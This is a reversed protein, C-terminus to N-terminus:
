NAIVNVVRTVEVANNGATDSVNYTITYEGIQNINVPNVTVINDTIDGDVNDVATAGLDTYETDVTVEIQSDGILTIVPITVDQVDVVNVVRTVEVANNGASDSVNYTIIYEGIQNINVPNVTVINNTIDGDVNDIATAGLDTYETDITVEIQSEGILTIIPITVDQVDVVNVVRTVEVANNGAIDSVNYTIIYEGIENINVPNVTVINDTIDGDVNDVATAGLDTYETGVTVEIQSEGILTIVPPMVDQIDVVNVVRKVEVANNGDSDVVNYTIIYEGIQNINVPNVIVINDTIDGDINDTAIAGLDTYETDVIVNVETAGIIMIIPKTLDNVVNVVRSVEIANNGASDVVNYTVTYEGIENTNVPNVVVINDTIDGDINDVATAGLDIYKDGIVIDIKKAGIRTIIPITTDFAKVVNVVRRVEIASNGASDVVNYIVIYKGIKKTNVLNIVEINETIDGDIDDTATAGLDIYETDLLITTPNNGLLVIVPKTEDKKEIPKSEEGCSIFLFITLILLINIIKM